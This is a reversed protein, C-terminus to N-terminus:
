RKKDGILDLGVTQLHRKMAQEALDSEGRRIAEFITRHERIVKPIDPTTKGTLMRSRRLRPALFQAVEHLVDNGAARIIAEHFLYDHRELTGHDNPKAEQAKLEQEIAHLQKAEARAAALGAARPEFMKRVELLEILDLEAEALHATAPWGGGLGALSRIYTGDGRRSEIVDLVQLAKIAERVAPRGVKLKAALAREAPLKAGVRLNESGILDRIQQLVNSSLCGVKANGPAASRRVDVGRPQVQPLKPM